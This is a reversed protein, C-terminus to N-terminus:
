LLFKSIIEQIQPFNWYPIDILKISNEECFKAKIQDNEVTRLHGEMGCKGGFNVPKFHQQGQYEICVNYKPLYFDFPLHKKNKCGEIRHERIYEVKLGDLIEAIKNEGRSELCIPCGSGNEKVRHVIESQWEHGKCCKWWM